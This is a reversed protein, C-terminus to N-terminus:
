KSVLIRYSNSIFIKFDIQYSLKSTLKIDTEGILLAPKKEFFFDNKKFLLPQHPCRYRMGVAVVCVLVMTYHCTDAVPVCVRAV